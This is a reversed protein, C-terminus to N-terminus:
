AYGNWRTVKHRGYNLVVVRGQGFLSTKVVEEPAPGQVRAVSGASRSVALVHPGGHRTAASSSRSNRTARRPTVYVLGTGAAVKELLQLRREGPLMAWDLKGVIIVDYTGAACRGCIGICWRRRRSSFRFPRISTAPANMEKFTESMWATYDLSLRQALEVTERQATVPAM